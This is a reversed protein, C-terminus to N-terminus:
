ACSGYCLKRGMKHLRLLIQWTGHCFAHLCSIASVTVSSALVAITLRLVECKSTGLIPQQKRPLLSNLGRMAWGHRARLLSDQAIGVGVKM